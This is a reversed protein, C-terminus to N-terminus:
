SAGATGRTPGASPVPAPQPTSVGKKAALNQHLAFLGTHHTHFCLIGKHLLAWFPRSERPSAAEPLRRHGSVGPALPVWPGVAEM